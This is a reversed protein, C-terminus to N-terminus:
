MEPVLRIDVVCNMDHVVIQHQDRDVRCQPKQVKEEATTFWEEDFRGTSEFTTTDIEVWFCPFEISDLRLCPGTFTCSVTVPRGRVTARDVVWM